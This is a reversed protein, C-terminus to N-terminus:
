QRQGRQDREWAREAARIVDEHKHFTILLSCQHQNHVHRRLEPNVTDIMALQQHTAPTLFRPSLSIFDFDYASPTFQESVNKACAAAKAGCEDASDFAGHVTPSGCMLKNRRDYFLTIVRWESSEAAASSSYARKAVFMCSALEANDFFLKTRALYVDHMPHKHWYPAHCPNPLFEKRTLTDLLAASMGEIEQAASPMPESEGNLEEVGGRNSRAGTENDGSSLEAEAAKGGDLGPVQRKTTSPTNGNVSPRNQVRQDREWVREATRIADAHMHFTILLSCQYADHAYDQLEPNRQNVTTLQKATAAKSLGKPVLSLDGSSRMQELVKKVCAGTKAGCEDASDFSGHVTPSETRENRANISVSIVRWESREGVAGSSSNVRKVVFLCNAWEEDTSLLRSRALYVDYMPHKHWRPAKDAGLDHIFEKETLTDLLAASMGEIEQDAWPMPVSEGNLEEVGRKSGAGTENDSSSLEAQIVQAGVLGPFDRGGAVWGLSSLEAEAAKGGDLGPVQRKTTSPTNGNESPRDQRLIRSREDQPTPGDVHAAKGLAPKQVIPADSSPPGWGDVCIEVNQRGSEPQTYRVSVCDDGLEILVKARPNLELKRRDIRDFSDVGGVVKTASQNDRLRFKTVLRRQAGVVVRVSMTTLRARM